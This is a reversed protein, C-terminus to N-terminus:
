ENDYMGRKSVRFLEGEKTTIVIEQNEFARYMIERLITGCRKCKVHGDEIDWQDFPVVAGCLCVCEWRAKRRPIFYKDDM